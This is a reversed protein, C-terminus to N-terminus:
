FYVEDRKRAAPSSGFSREEGRGGGSGVVVGTGGRDV